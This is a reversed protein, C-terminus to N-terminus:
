LALNLIAGAESKDVLIHCPRYSVSWLYRQNNITLHFLNDPDNGEAFTRAVFFNTQHVLLIMRTYFSEPLGYSTRVIGLEKELSSEKNFCYIVM